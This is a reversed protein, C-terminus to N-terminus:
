VKRRYYAALKAHLRAMAARVQCRPVGCQLLEEELNKSDYEMTAEVQDQIVSLTHKSFRIHKKIKKTDRKLLETYHGM